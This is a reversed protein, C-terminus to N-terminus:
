RQGRVHAGLYAGGAFGLTAWLKWHRQVFSPKNAEAFNYLTRIYEDKSQLASDAAVRLRECSNALDSCAQLASDTAAVYRVIVSDRTIGNPIFVSDRITRVSAIRVVVTDIQKRNSAVEVSYKAQWLRVKRDKADMETRLSALARRSEQLRLEASAALVGLAIAVMLLATVLRTM